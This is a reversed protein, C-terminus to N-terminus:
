HTCGVTVCQKISFTVKINRTFKSKLLAICKHLIFTVITCMKITLVAPNGIDFATIFSRILWSVGLYNFFVLHLSKFCSWGSFLTDAEVWEVWNVPLKNRKPRGNNLFFFPFCFLSAGSFPRSTKLLCSTWGWLAGCSLMLIGCGDSLQSPQYCLRHHPSNALLPSIASNSAVLLQAWWGISM